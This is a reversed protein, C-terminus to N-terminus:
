FFLIFDFFYYKILKVIVVSRTLQNMVHTM